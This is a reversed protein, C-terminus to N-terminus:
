RHRRRHMFRTRRVSSRVSEVAVSCGTSSWGVLDGMAIQQRSSPTHMRRAKVSLLM